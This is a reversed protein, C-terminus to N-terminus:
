PSPVDLGRAAALTGWRSRERGLARQFWADAQAEAGLGRLAMAAVYYRQPPHLAALAPLQEPSVGRAAELGVLHRAFFESRTHDGLVEEALCRGLPNADPAERELAELLAKAEAADLFCARLYRLALRRPHGESLHELSRRALEGALERRRAAEAGGSAMLGVARALVTELLRGGAEGLLAGLQPARAAAELAARDDGAELHRWTALFARRGASSPATLSAELAAVRAEVEERGAASRLLAVAELFMGEESASPTEELLARAALAAPRGGVVELLYRARALGGEATAAPMAALHARLRPIMRAPFGGLAGDEPLDAVLRTAGEFDGADFRALAGLVQAPLFGPDRALVRQAGAVLPAPDGQSWAPAHQLLEIKLLAQARLLHGGLGTVMGALVLLVAWGAVGPEALAALARPGLPREDLELEPAARRLVEAMELVPERAEFTVDGLAQGDPGQLDVSFGAPTERLQMREVPLVAALQRTRRGAGDFVRLGRDTVLYLSAGRERQGIRYALYGGVVGLALDVPLAPLGLPAVPAMAMMLAHGLHLAPIASQIFLRLVPPTRQTALTVLGLLTLVFTALYWVEQGRAPWHVRLALATLLALLSAALGLTFAASRFLLSTALEPPNASRVARPEEGEELAAEIDAQFEAYLAWGQKRFAIRRGEYAFHRQLVALLWAFVLVGAPGAAAIWLLRAELAPTVQAVGAGGLSALPDLGLRAVYPLYSVAGFFGAVVLGFRALIAPVRTPDPEIGRFVAQRPDPRHGRGDLFIM